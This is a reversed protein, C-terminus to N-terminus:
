SAVHHRSGILGREEAGWFAFRVGARAQTPGQALRLAAELVAASGSGNDNIGPGEPVSDLHAGVIILSSDSNFATDALVNRPHRKGTVATVDLRVTADSRAASDLARGLESSVGVVPIPALESLQGSFADTRGDTGENIIVVGAAGASRANEVKTQFTCTGRRILAVFGREFEDFDTTK